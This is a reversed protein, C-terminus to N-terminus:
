KESCIYAFSNIYLTNFLFLRIKGVQWVGGKVKGFVGEMEEYIGNKLVKVYWIPPTYSLSFVLFHIVLHIVEQYTENQLSYGFSYGLSYGFGFKLM